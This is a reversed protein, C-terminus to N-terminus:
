GAAHLSRSSFGARPGGRTRFDLSRNPRGATESRENEAEFRGHRATRGKRAQPTSGSEPLTKAAHRMPARRRYNIASFSSVGSPISASLSNM